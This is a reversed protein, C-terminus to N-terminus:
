RPALLTLHSRRTVAIDRDDHSRLTARVRLHERRRLARMAARRIRVYVARTAGAPLRLTRTTVTRLAGGRRLKAVLRLRGVCPGDADAPCSVRVRALRDAAVRVRQHPVRAGAFPLEVRVTVRATATLGTPDEVTVWATHDGLSTFAHEVDQYTATAGDDFRWSFKPTDAEDRDFSLGAFVFKQGPQGTEPTVTARVTPANRGYEFAGIDRRVSGDADGDVIRRAGSRDTPSEGAGLPEGPTGADIMPSTSRLSFFGTPGSYFQPDDTRRHTDTLSGHGPLDHNAAVPDYDDYDATINADAGTPDPERSLATGKTRVISNRVTLNAPTAGGPRTRARAGATAAAGGVVTVQQAHLTAEDAVLGTAGPAGHVAISSDDIVLTSRDRAVAGFPGRLTARHVTLTTGAATADIATGAYVFTDRVTAHGGAARIGVSDDGADAPFNIGGNEFVGGQAFRVGVASSTGSFVVTDAIRVDTTARIGTNPDAGTTAPIGVTMDRVTSGPAGVSLVPEGIPTDALTLVTKGPGAGVIEVPNGSSSTVYRFHRGFDARYKADGLVVRDRGPNSEAADLAGQM